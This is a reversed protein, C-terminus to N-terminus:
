PDDGFSFQVAQLMNLCWDLNHSLVALPSGWVRFLGGRLDVDNRGRLDGLDM